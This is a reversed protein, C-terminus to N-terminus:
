ASGGPPIDETTMTAANDRDRARAEVAYGRAMSYIHTIQDMEYNQDFATGTGSLRLPRDITLTPDGPIQFQIEREFKSLQDAGAQSHKSVNAKSMGPVNAPYTTASGKSATGPRVRTIARSPAKGTASDYASVFRDTGKGVNLARAMRLTVCNSIAPAQATQPSFWIDYPTGSGGPPTMVVQKGKVSLRLGEHHALSGLIDWASRNTWLRGQFNNQVDGVGGAAGGYNLSLQPVLGVVNQALQQTPLQGAVNQQSVHSDMLAGSYDRGRISLVSGTPHPPSGENRIMGGSGVETRARNALSAHAGFSSPALAVADVPGIILSTWSSVQGNQNAFGISIEIEIDLNTAWWKWDYPSASNFLPAEIDFSGAAQHGNLIVTFSEFPFITGNVTVKARPARVISPPISGAPSGTPASGAGTPGTPSQSSPPTPAKATVDVEPLDVSDTM